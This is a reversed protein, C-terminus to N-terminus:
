IGMLKFHKTNFFISAIKWEFIGQDWGTLSTSLKADFPMLTEHTCALTASPVTTGVTRKKEDTCQQGTTQESERAASRSLVRPLAWNEHREILM